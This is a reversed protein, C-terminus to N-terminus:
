SRRWKPIKAKILAGFAESTSSALDIDQAVFRETMDPLPLIRAVERNWKMVIAARTGTSALIGWWPTVESGFM